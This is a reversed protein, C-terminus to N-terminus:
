RVRVCADCACADLSRRHRTQVGRMVRTRARRRGWTVHHTAEVNHKAEPGLSADAM